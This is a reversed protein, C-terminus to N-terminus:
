LVITESGSVLYCRPQLNSEADRKKNEVKKERKEKKVANSFNLVKKQRLPSSKALPASPECESVATKSEDRKVTAM